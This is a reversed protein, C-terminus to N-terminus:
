FIEKFSFGLGQGKPLINVVGSLNQGRALPFGFNIGPVMYKETPGPGWPKKNSFENFVKHEFVWPGIDNANFAARGSTAGQKIFSIYCVFFVLVRLVPVLLNNLDYSKPTLRFM